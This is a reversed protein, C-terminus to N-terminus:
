YKNDPRAETKTAEARSLTLRLGLGWYSVTSGEFGLIGDEHVM